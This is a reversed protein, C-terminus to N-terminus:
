VSMTQKKFTAFPSNNNVKPMPAKPPTPPLPKATTINKNQGKKHKKFILSPNLVYKSFNSSAFNNRIVPTVLNSSIVGGVVAASSEAFNRFSKYKDEIEKYYHVKTLDFNYKGVNKTDGYQHIKEYVDKPTLKGTSIMKSALRKVSSTILFFSGINIAADAIEQPIMFSKQEKSYKKNNAIGIVQATSSAIWGIISTHILMGGVNDSYKEFITKKINDFRESAFKTLTKLFPNKM